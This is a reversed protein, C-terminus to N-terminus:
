ASASVSVVVPCSTSRRPRSPSSPRRVSPYSSSVQSLSLRETLGALYGFLVFPEHFADIHRYPGRLWDHTERNAGLVHDYVLIHDYGLSEAAQAYDRILAPDNGIELQPFVVGIRM